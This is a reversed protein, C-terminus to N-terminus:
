GKPGKLSHFLNQWAPQLDKFLKQNAAEALAMAQKASKAADAMMKSRVPRVAGDDKEGHDIVERVLKVLPAGLVTKVSVDLYSSAIVSAATAAEQVLAVYPWVQALLEQRAAASVDQDAFYSTMVRSLDTTREVLAKAITELTEYYSILASWTDKLEDDGLVTKVRADQHDCDERLYKLAIGVAQHVAYADSILQNLWSRVVREVDNDPATKFLRLLKMVRGSMFAGTRAIKAACGHGMILSNVASEILEAVSEHFSARWQVAALTVPASLPTGFPALNPATSVPTVVLVALFAVTHLLMDVYEDWWSMKLLDPISIGRQVIGMRQLAASLTNDTSPPATSM